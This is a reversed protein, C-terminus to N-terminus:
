RSVSGSSARNRNASGLRVNRFHVTGNHSQLGLYGKTNRLKLLPYRMPDADVVKVGNHIVTVHQGACNIELTNWSGAPKSVCPSAPAIDYLSASYQYDKLPEARRAHDDIIQIEFGAPPLSSNERHHNADAPVRVYVGSNAGPTLQYELRLNFDGYEKPSAALHTGKRPLRHEM